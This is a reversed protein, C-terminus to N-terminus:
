QVLDCRERWRERIEKGVSFWWRERGLREKGGTVREEKVEVEKERKLIRDCVGDEGGEMGDSVRGRQGTVIRRRGEREEGKSRREGSVTCGGRGKGEELRAELLTLAVNIPKKVSVEM